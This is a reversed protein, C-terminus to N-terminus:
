RPPGSGEEIIDRLQRRGAIGLKPYSRYLHSAVTRPSLFLRDAIEGNTLGHGALIVIERQQATLGDLAHAAGPAGQPAQVTVGCARLESEARRTWPAAGLRRFTELATVLIPKADNIRRQRRLWEGYDLQLQAREFPWTDGAPDALPAAFHAEASDPGALLGRARAALQELRPGPAPDVRALARELLTRAELRREARVAAAALDAVALYSFHHHLPTGDAAFLRSLQAYATVYNGQALAALGATQWIRAAFGRYEGTDVAARVRALLPAVQDHEGRMAAVVATTLDASGAVTEMKYAAAIDGAEQAADLADDWRGSDVCAWELASLVGGSAGRVGPARLRSLAERLVRVALETEDLIWAAAGFTGPDSLSEGATRRLLPVLDAREGFPDTCARIWIRYEAAPAPAPAPGDQSDLLDLAARAKARVEPLGTQHAVTAAMWAAQWAIAPLGPSAEAVVSLLTDFADANRNSWLLSWGIDLRAAIRLDPDSTLTLVRGALERVWDAQGASLALGAAALLRRAKDPEGPSLEAARELARAAAAAGGRRQAQAASDELLAALHEDPELAAAALHWARRDPRDRLADAVQRHAAAREAFPAAHYVASRTLPHAFWPGQTDLRILGVAEAPALAAASLGTVATTLDPSDAAAALLLASRAAPPLTVYQAAMLATLRGTLPLPEATWRRGADPDTAIVRALEILALPNGVAQVLVQERLRGHPPRPQADLLLGADPRTLPRLLLQPLDREFGAPPVNGRAGALLVLQESELRRAAFALADLSARDLWHADDAAVLLPQEDSLESLLTLVAIGTLLADPPAPDDSLGFAGRLAEAQRAPLRAVRDLVPRLLQHLGAFALDQESERGTTALVRMGAARAERAAEALLVTKGLGPDGLLLLVHSEKHPPAILERLLSLEERRGIVNTDKTDKTDQRTM